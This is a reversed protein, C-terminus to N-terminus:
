KPPSADDLVWPLEALFSFTVGLQGTRFDPQALASPPAFFSVDFRPTSPLRGSGREEINGWFCYEGSYLQSSGSGPGMEYVEADKQPDIGTASFFEIVAPPLGTLVVRAFNRCPDCTCRQSGGQAISAYTARTREADVSVIWGALELRKIM